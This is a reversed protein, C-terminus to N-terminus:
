SRKAFPCRHCLGASKASPTSPCLPDRLYMGCPGVKRLAASLTEM